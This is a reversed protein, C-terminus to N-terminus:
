LEGVRVRCTLQTTRGVFVSGFITARFPSVVILLTSSVPIDPVPFDLTM